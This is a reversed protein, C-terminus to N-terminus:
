ASLRPSVRPMDAAATTLAVETMTSRHLAQECHQDGRKRQWRRHRAPRRDGNEGGGRQCLHQRADILRRAIAEGARILERDLNLLSRWRVDECGCAWFLRLEQKARA